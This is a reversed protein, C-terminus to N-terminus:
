DKKKKAKPLKAKQEKTLLELEDAKFKKYHEQTERFVDRQADTFGAEEQLKNWFADGELDTKKLKSYVEDRRKITEKEIGVAARKKDIMARLDASLKNFSKLQEPTLDVAEM